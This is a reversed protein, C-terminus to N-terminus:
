ESIFNAMIAPSKKILANLLEYAVERSKSSGADEGGRKRSAKVKALEQM